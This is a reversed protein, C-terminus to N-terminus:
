KNFYEMRKIDHYIAAWEKVSFLTHDVLNWFLVMYGGKIIFHVSKSNERCNTPITGNLKWKNGM